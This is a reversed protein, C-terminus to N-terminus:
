LSRCRQFFPHQLANSCSIRNNPHYELLQQVLNVLNQLDENRSNLEHDDSDNNEQTHGWVIDHLTRKTSDPYLLFPKGSDFSYFKLARCSQRLMSEPLPGLLSEYAGVLGTEDKVEFLPRGTYLEIILCGLSWRDIAPDHGFGFVVEPARYFLSQIAAYVRDGVFFSSGFDILAVQSSDQHRLLINEPKLDAHVIARPQHNGMEELAQLVQYSVDQIFHLPLGQSGANKLLLYLNTSLFELSLVRHGKWWFNKLLDVIVKSKKRRFLSKLIIIEVKGSMLFERGSRIIKLAVITEEVKDFCKLVKGFTGHGVIDMVIYRDSITEGIIARYSGDKDDFGNNFQIAQPLFRSEAVERERINSYVENIHVTLACLPNFFKLNKGEGEKTNMLPSGHDRPHAEKEADTAALKLGTILPTPALRDGKLGQCDERINISPVSAATRPSSSGKRVTISAATTM